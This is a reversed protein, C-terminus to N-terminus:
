APPPSTTPSGLNDREVGRAAADGTPDAAGEVPTAPSAPQAAPATGPPVASPAPLSSTQVVADDADDSASVEERNWVMWIVIGAIIFAALFGLVVLGNTRTSREPAPPIRDTM